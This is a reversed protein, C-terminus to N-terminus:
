AAAVGCCNACPLQHSNPPLPCPTDPAQLRVEVGGQLDPNQLFATEPVAEITAGSALEILLKSGEVKAVCGKQWSEKADPVWVLSGKTHVGDLASKQDKTDAM